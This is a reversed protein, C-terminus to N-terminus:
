GVERGEVMLTDMQSMARRLDNGIRIMDTRPSDIPVVYDKVDMPNLWNDCFATWYPIVFIDYGLERLIDREQRPEVKTLSKVPSGAAKRSHKM